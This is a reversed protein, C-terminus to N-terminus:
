EGNRKAWRFAKKRKKVTAQYFSRERKKRKAHHLRAFVDKRSGEGRVVRGKGRGEKKGIHSPLTERDQHLLVGEEAASIKTASGKGTSLQVGNKEGKGGNGAHLTKKSPRNISGGKKGGKPDTRVANLYFTL